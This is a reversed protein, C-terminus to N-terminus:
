PRKEVRLRELLVASPHGDEPWGRAKQVARIAARTQSGIIGDIAGVDHGGSQLLAQLEEREARSLGRDGAPWTSVFAGGSALRDALHGVAIAYPVARNYRLIARFNASALIAPGGAGAPLILNWGGGARAPEEALKPTAVPNAGLTIWEALPRAVGPASLSLDFGDALRVEIGWPLGAVWGSAKLYNAASALADAPAGWIDRKGDGDFDVAHQLYTSPMFQTHGMAGAWSGTMAEPAIDGRELITLAAILEGRWFAARRADTASLTALSRIVGREGRSAGYASEIGWIAALVHRDVGYRQEIRALLEANEALRDRGSAIRTESVLLGVYEGASKVHEPQAANLGAIEGDITLGITARAFTAASVGKLAALPQVEVLLAALRRADEAADLAAQGAGAAQIPHPAPQLATQPEEPSTQALLLVLAASAIVAAGLLALMPWGALKM